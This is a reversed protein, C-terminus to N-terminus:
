SGGRQTLRGVSEALSRVMEGNSKLASLTEAQTRELAELRREMRDAQDRFRDRSAEQSQAMAAVTQVLQNQAQTRADLSSSHQALVTANRELATILARSDDLRKENIAQRATDWEDREGLYRELDANQRRVLWGVALILLVALAGSLGQSLIVELAKELM